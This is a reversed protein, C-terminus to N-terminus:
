AARRRHVQQLAQGDREGRRRRAVKERRHHRQGPPDGEADLLVHQLLHGQGCDPLRHGPRARLAEGRGLLRQRLAGEAALDERRRRHSTCPHVPRERCLHRRAGAGEQRLLLRPRRSPAQEAPHPLGRQVPRGLLPQPQDRAARLRVDHPGLLRLGEEPQRGCLRVQDRPVAQRDRGGPRRDVRVQREAQGLSPTLSQEPSASAAGATLGLLLLAIVARATSVRM